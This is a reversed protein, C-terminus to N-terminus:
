HFWLSNNLHAIQKEKGNGKEKMTKVNSHFNNQVKKQTHNQETKGKIGEMERRRGDQIGSKWTSMIEM